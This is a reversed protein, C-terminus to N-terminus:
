NMKVKPFNNLIERGTVEDSFQTCYYKQMEIIDTLSDLLVKEFSTFLSEILVYSYVCQYCTAM